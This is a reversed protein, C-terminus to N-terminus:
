VESVLQKWLVLVSCQVVGEYHSAMNSRRIFQIRTCIFVPFPWISQYLTVDKAATAVNNEAIIKYQRFDEARVRRIHLQSEIEEGHRVQRLFFVCNEICSMSVSVGSTVTHKWIKLFLKEVTFHRSVMEFGRGVCAALFEAHRAFTQWCMVFLM